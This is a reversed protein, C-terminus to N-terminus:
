YLQAIENQYKEIIRARKMKLTPTLLGNEVTWAEQLLKVRRIKAYGPVDKLYQNVRTLLVKQIQKDNLLEPNESKINHQQAFLQWQEQNVVILASLYAQGEGIVLVQEFLNDQTLNLEIDSPSIKEGNILVIIDKLRGTIHWHGYQDQSAIDGTHLWGESDIVQATATPNHWYGLMVSASKTLLENNEGLKVAIQPLPLGISEPINHEPLNVTIVPSTETLGYGQLINLGLGIFLKAVESPLAAGGCIALRIEGGLKALLKDAVLKKLLSNLLLKPCWSRRKQQYQFHRYGVDVALKFLYRSFFSKKALETQIKGYVQEYIRPVSILVTPRIYLLDASLQQVSRAYAVTAGIFMPLYYGAMRELMHSLPLFSLFIDTPQWWTTCTAASHVNALINRHSLMVGKPRGTTGSTYVISALTNDSQSTTHLTHETDDSLWDTLAILRSDVEDDSLEANEITIIHIIHPIEQKIAHLHRWQRKGEIILIKAETENLIYAVNDPRDDTYLPVTVLGLGLAAQDFMIWYPSNRLMIAVRDGQKLGTQLLATQWQAVQQAMFQWTFDQWNKEQRDFHRYAINDPTSEVRLRFLESLTTPLSLLSYMLWEKEM